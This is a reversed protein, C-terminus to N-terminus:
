ASIMWAAVGVCALRAYLVVVDYKIRVGVWLAVIDMSHGSRAERQRDLRGRGRFFLGDM